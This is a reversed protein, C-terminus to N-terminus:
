NSSPPPAEDSRKRRREDLWAQREAKKRLEIRRRILWYVLGFAVAVAAVVAFGGLADSLFNQWQPKPNM